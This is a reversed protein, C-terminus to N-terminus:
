PAAETRKLQLTFHWNVNNGSQNWVLPEVAAPEFM